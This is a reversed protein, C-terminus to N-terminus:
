QCQNKAALYTQISCKHIYFFLSHFSIGGVNDYIEIIKIVIKKKNTLYLDIFKISNAETILYGDM